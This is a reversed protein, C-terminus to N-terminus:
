VTEIVTPTTPGAGARRATLAQRGKVALWLEMRESPDDPHRGTLERFREMRYRLTHRHIGLREATESWRCGSELLAALSEILWPRDRAGGLLRDVFAELAAGPMDLLLELAGLDRYSSVPREGVELAARAELLSRGLLAGAGPRGIGLRTGPLSAALSEAVAFTTDEDAADVLFAARDRRATSLYRHGADDLARAVAARTSEASAESAGTALLAAYPSESSLGFAALRRELEGAELRGQELDDLLDGALRLEADSVAHRRSLEFALATQGHHLVLRDYETLAGHTKAARLTAPEGAGTVPLELAKGAPPEDQTRAAAVLRADGDVLELDCGLHDALAALLAQVGEGALVAEALREHVALARTLRELEESALQAAAAQTIAIFPVEYPICVVPFGLRDGEEVLARPVEDHGFGTGFGLGAIGHRALRRVYERQDRPDDGIGLGTALLFERGELWPTPDSLESLHLWRVENDLGAVGAAASLELAPLDVIDRVTLM